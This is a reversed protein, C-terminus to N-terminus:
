NAKVKLSDFDFEPFHTRWLEDVPANVVVSSADKPHRFSLHSAHLATHQEHSPAGLLSAENVNQRRTWDFNSGYAVDGLVPYGRSAFQLRIQHMRGTQMEIELVRAIENEYLTRYNLVALKAGDSEKSVVEAHAVEPIKRMWDEFMGEKHLTTDGVNSSAQIAVLYRKRVQRHLFQQSLSSLSKRTRAILLAGTTGRDLRHPPEIFPTQGDASTSAVQTRLLTQVSQVGFTSITLVGSPKNIVFFLPDDVLIDIM